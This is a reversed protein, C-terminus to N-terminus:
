QEAPWSRVSGIAESLENRQNQPGAFGNLLDEAAALGEDDRANQIAHMVEPYTPARAEQVGNQAAEETQGGPQAENDQQTDQHGNLEALAEGEIRAHEKADCGRRRTFHGEKTRSPIGNATMGHVTPNHAIGRSDQWFEEGTEHDTVQKPWESMDKTQDSSEPKDADRNEYDDVVAYNGELVGTLNQERGEDAAEDLSTATALEISVPLYKFLRRIATKRGMEEYHDRWPGYQGGSPTSRMITDVDQRMMVEFAHGGGQLKAVGYFHTIEGRDVSEPRHSLKENLGYEWEFEDHERVAHAAISVIQGSRRALDIMGRYGIRVQVDTRNAKRNGVPVLSAHGMPTNPELGLQACQVVAGFLSEVTCDMLKPTTRLAGLAIKLMRDPGVHKPLVAAISSKNAEFFQAVTAGGAQKAPLKSKQRLNTVSTTM